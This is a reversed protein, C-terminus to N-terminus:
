IADEDHDRLTRPEPAVKRGTSEALAKWRDALELYARKLAPSGVHEAMAETHKAMERYRGARQAVPTEDINMMAMM